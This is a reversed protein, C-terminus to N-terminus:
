RGCKGPRRRSAAAGHARRRARSENALVPRDDDAGRGSATRGEDLRRVGQWARGVAGTARRRGLWDQFAAASARRDQRDADAAAQQRRGAVNLERIQRPMGELADRFPQSIAPNDSVVLIRIGAYGELLRRYIEEVRAIVDKTHVAWAQASEVEAQTQILMGVFIAQIVLPAAVLLLATRVITLQMNMYTM